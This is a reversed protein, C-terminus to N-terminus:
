PDSARGGAGGRARGRRLHVVSEGAASGHWRQRLYCRISDISSGSDSDGGGGGGAGDDVVEEVTAAGAGGRAAEASATVHRAAAGERLERMRQLGRRYQAQAQSGYDDDLQLHPQQESPRLNAATARRKWRAASLAVVGAAAMDPIVVPVADTMPVGKLPAAIREAVPVFEQREALPTTDAVAVAVPTARMGGATVGPPADNEANTHHAPMQRQRARGLARQTEAVHSLLLARRRQQARTAATDSAPLTGVAASLQAMTQEYEAAFDIPPM